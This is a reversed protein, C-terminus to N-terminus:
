KMSGSHDLVLATSVRELKGPEGIGITYIRVNNRNAEAIVAQLAQNSNLDIGDTMLVVAKDRNSPMKALTQVGAFAADLYAHGGRPQVTSIHKLLPKRDFIPPLQTRIEHDFLILGCDSKKPLKDLFVSPAARAQNMRDFGTMSGSTDLALMISL